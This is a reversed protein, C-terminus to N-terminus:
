GLSPRLWDAVADVVWMGADLPLDHGATSHVQLMAGWAHALRLSCRPDVLQDADSVLVLLPVSTKGQSASFRAAAWLQRLANMRAVPHESRWRAWADLLAARPVGPHYTTLDLIARERAIAGSPLLQGLLRAYNAPRLREYWASFNRLSTSILVCGQLEQPQDRAWALAVMAGMSMALLLYPPPLGRARLAARYADTMAEISAPSRQANLRGNGPLDLAVVNSAPFRSQLQTSFEGWHRRERTLGRMLVWTSM